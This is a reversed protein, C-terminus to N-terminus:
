SAIAGAFLATAREALGRYHSRVGLAHEDMTAWTETMHRELAPVGINRSLDIARGMAGAIREFYTRIVDTTLMAIYVGSRNRDLQEVRQQAVGAAAAFANWRGAHLDEPWDCFHDFLVMAELNSDICRDIEPFRDTRDALLTVALASIKLPAARRSLPVSSGAHGDSSGPAHMQAANYTAARWQEMWTRLQRWLPSSAPFRQHYYGLASDYLAASLRKAAGVEVLPVEGDVLDDQLRISALGIVNSLVLRSCTERDLGYAQGLWWPLHWELSWREPGVRDRVRLALALEAPSAARAIAEFEANLSPIDLEADRSLQM